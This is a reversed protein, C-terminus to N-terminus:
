LQIAEVQEGTDAYATSTPSQETFREQRVRMQQERGPLTIPTSFCGSSAAITLQHNSSGLLRSVSAATACGAM